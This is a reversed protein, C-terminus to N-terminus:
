ALATRGAPAREPCLGELRVGRADRGRLAIVAGCVAYAVPDGWPAAQLASVTRGPIFGLEMLRLQEGRPALLQSVTAKRGTELRDLTTGEM